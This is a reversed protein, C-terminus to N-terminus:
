RQKLSQYIQELRGFVVDPSYRGVAYQRCSDIRKKDKMPTDVVVKALADINYTPTFTGFESSAVYPTGAEAFGAVPTGCGMADICVNPMTDALSTCVFLDGISYYEALEDQSAVYPISIMNPLVNKEPHDYGVFVFTVDKGSRLKEALQLFYKGGKRPDSMQTVTVIVKNEKPIGLKKKLAETERPFFTNGFDVPEDLVEIRHNKLLASSKARSVVWGPGTFVLNMYGDYVKKKANFIFASRDFFWSKPYSKKEPCGGKCGTMFLNCSFSYPCKGMYAYEDMMTYCVPYDHNKLYSLYQCSNIFYGHLINLQVIDPHFEKTIKILKRTAVPHVFGEYGTLMSIFRGVIPEAIGAVAIYDLNDIRPERIGRYCVRVDHGKRKLYEYQLTTIKGTSHIAGYCDVILIKM